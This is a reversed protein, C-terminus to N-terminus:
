SKRKGNSTAHPFPLFLAAVFLLVMGGILLLNPVSLIIFGLNLYSAPTDL